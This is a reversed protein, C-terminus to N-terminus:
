KKNEKEITEISILCLLKRMFAHKMEVREIFRAEM